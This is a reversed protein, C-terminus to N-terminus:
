SVWHEGDLRVVVRCISCVHISEHYTGNADIVVPTEEVVQDDHNGLVRHVRKPHEQKRYEKLGLMRIHDEEMLPEGRKIATRRASLKPGRMKM